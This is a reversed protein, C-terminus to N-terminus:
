LLDVAEQLDEMSTHLYVTTTKISEHGLLKQVQLINVGREILNSAFSHRLIHCSVTKRIGSEKVADRLERNVFQSSVKGSQSSFFRDTGVFYRDNELYDQLVKKLRDNIPINRDKGGKGERVRICDKELDVDALTLKVCEHIRLGTYFLAHVVVRATPSSVERAIKRFEIETVYEREKTEIRVNRILKGTNVPCYDKRHCFSYLSKFATTANHRASSSYREEGLENFLFRELDEPKVEDISVPRNYRHLLYQGFWQLYYRYNGITAESKDMVSLNELFLELAKTYTM